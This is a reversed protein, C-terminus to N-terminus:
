SRTSRRLTSREQRSAKACLDASFKTEITIPGSIEGEPWKTIARGKFKLTVAKIKATKQVRLHLNGRLMATNGSTRDGTDFGQLFLVPEALNISISVGSGSALPKDSTDTIPFSNAMSTTSTSTSISTGADSMRRADEARRVDEALNPRSVMGSVPGSISGRIGSRMNGASSNGQNASGVQESARRTQQTANGTDVSRSQSDSAHHAFRLLRKAHERSTALKEIFRFHSPNHNTPGYVAGLVPKVTVTGRRPRRPEFYGKRKSVTKCCCPRNHHLHNVGVM